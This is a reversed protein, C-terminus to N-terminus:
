KFDFTKFETKYKKSFATVVEVKCGIVEEIQASDEDFMRGVTNPIYFNINEETVAYYFHKDEGKDNYDVRVVDKITYVEGVVPEVIRTRSKLDSIRM